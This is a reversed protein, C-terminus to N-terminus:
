RKKPKKLSFQEVLKAADKPGGWGLIKPAKDAFYVASLFFWSLEERERESLDRYSETELERPAKVPVAIVRDNRVRKGKKDTEELQIVGILRSPIVVGPYTPVDWMVMADLPDGDEAKTNPIFGWDFPYTLGYSLPKAVTFAEIEEIYELKVRSGRPSEVVVLCNGKKDTPGLKKLNM